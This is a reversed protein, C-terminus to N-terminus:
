HMQAKMSYRWWFYFRRIRCCAFGQRKEFVHLGTQCITIQMIQWFYHNKLPSPRKLTLFEKYSKMQFIINPMLTLFKLFRSKIEWYISEM